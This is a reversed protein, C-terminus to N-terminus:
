VHLRSGEPDVFCPAVVKVEVRLNRVPSVAWVTEGLRERGRALFGLAIPHGVTPSLYASSAVHGLKPVPPPTVPDAVLLAGAPIKTEGDAPVLGVLKPRDPDTFAPKDLMGRGVFWKKTSAMRGMGVDDLTIRGDLEAHTVHGKEIRLIGMAEMGYPTIGHKEGAVM